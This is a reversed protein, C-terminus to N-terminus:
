FIVRSFIRKTKTRSVNTKRVNKNFCEEKAIRKPVDKEQSKSEKKIKTVM